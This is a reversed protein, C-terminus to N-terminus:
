GIRSSGIQDPIDMGSVRGTDNWGEYYNGDDRGGYIREM